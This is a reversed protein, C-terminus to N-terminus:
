AGGTPEGRRGPGHMRCAIRHRRAEAEIQSLTLLGVCARAGPPPGGDAAIRRVLALAPLTPVYPGDGGEAVLSWAARAPAGAADVGEAEVLMGGRDTGFREFRAAVARFPVALPALSPLLGARVPLAALRLGDHLLRLELGARFTATAVEPFRGPLIDLDPTECLSLRRPGLDEMDRVVTDGWGPLSRWAGDRRVRVPRGAYSLISRVVALGRPARNGPSIAVEIRRVARWGATMADLAANSLAPTSSAGCTASVGARRAEGDLAPAFGAVFARGDALDVYPVRAGVCARALAYAGPLYPGAADVVVDPRLAAVDAATATAADLAATGVPADPHRARLRNAAEGAKGLNRGALVVECGTTAAIGDALLSGFTGAGGVVLVRPRGSM